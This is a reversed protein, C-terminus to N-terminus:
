GRHMLLCSADSVPLSPRQAGGIEEGELIYMEKIKWGFVNKKEELSMRTRLTKVTKVFNDIVRGNIFKTEILFIEYNQCKKQMMENNVGGVKWKYWIFLLREDEGNINNEGKWNGKGINNEKILWLFEFIMDILLLKLKKTDIYKWGKKGDNNWMAILVKCIVSAENINEKGIKPMEKGWRESLEFNAKEINMEAAEIKEILKKKERGNDV